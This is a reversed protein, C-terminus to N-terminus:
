IFDKYDRKILKGYKKPLKRIEKELSKDGLIFITQLKPDYVSNLKQNVDAISYKKIIENFNFLEDYDVGIHDLYLLQLLFARNSEFKFPHSGLLGSRGRDLEDATVGSKKVNELTTQIVEILKNLTENKTYTTIGARGYEKQSSIYSGISYTLGRKVRVERMLKSTFGGGLLDTALIDLNRDKIESSNLFRGIRVQVQNADPVPVFVIEAKKNTFNKFTVKREFDNKNGKLKCDNVLVKEIELLNKPGTLYIRKKVNDLFYNLKKKLGDSTYLDLDKLKGSVPYSYPTGSLTIERNARDALGQLHSVMSHYGSKEKDLEKKLVDKPYQVDRFLHCVDKMSSNFDKSLGSMSFTTYEHTTDSEIETGLFDIQDLIQEQTLKSTGSDILNFAHETEGKHTSDSLAGDAFYMVMEYTPFRNDELFIVEIGNWNLKKFSSKIADSASSINGIVISLMMGIILKKM